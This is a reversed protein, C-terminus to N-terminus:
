VMGPAMALLHPPQPGGHSLRLADLQCLQHPLQSVDRGRRGEPRPEVGHRHPHGHRRHQGRVGGLPVDHPPSEGKGAGNELLLRSRPKVRAKQM